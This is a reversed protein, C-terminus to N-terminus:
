SRKRGTTKKSAGTKKGPTKGLSIRSSTKKLSAKKAPRKTKLKKASAKKTPAKSTSAQQRSSKRAAIKKIQARKVQSKPRRSAKAGASEPATLFDIVTKTFNAADEINSIHSAELTVFKAGEIANAVFTGMRPPAAPDHRGAIVLVKNTISRIAERHDMDRIAACGAVYGQLSTKRVMEMVTEVKEPHTDRFAKTFWREAAAIAVGNMGADRASRIRSNWLDPGAMQAATSALVARGIRERAHILLWQGVISGLSLGLWHVKPIALADLIALADRGLGEISYPGENAVSAGHGRADYRLVRFHARLAPVQPAWIHLNAGLPHALMLVPRNEEGEILVNFAEGTISIKTM